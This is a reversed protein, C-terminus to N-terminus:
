TKEKKISNVFKNMQKNYVQLKEIEKQTKNIEKQLELFEKNSRYM